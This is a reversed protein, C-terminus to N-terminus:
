PFIASKSWSKPDNVGGFRSNAGLFFVGGLVLEQRELAEEVTPHSGNEGPSLEAVQDWILPKRCMTVEINLLALM